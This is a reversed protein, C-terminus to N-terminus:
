KMQGFSDDYAKFPNALLMLVGGVREGRTPLSNTRSDFPCRPPTPLNAPSRRLM